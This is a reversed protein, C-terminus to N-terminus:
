QHVKIFSGNITEVVGNPDIWITWAPSVGDTPTFKLFDGSATAQGVTIILYTHRGNPDTQRCYIGFAAFEPSHPADNSRLMEVVGTVEPLSMRDVSVLADGTKWQPIRPSSPEHTARSISSLALVATLVVLARLM